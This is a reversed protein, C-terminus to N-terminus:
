KWLKFPQKLHNNEGTLHNNQKNNDLIIVLSSFHLVTDCLKKSQM